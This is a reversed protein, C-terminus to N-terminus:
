GKQKMTSTEAAYINKYNRYFDCKKKIWTSAEHKGLMQIERM